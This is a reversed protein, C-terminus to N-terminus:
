YGRVEVDSGFGLAELLDFCDQFVDVLFDLDGAL